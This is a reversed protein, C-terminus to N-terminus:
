SAAPCAPRRPMSNTQRPGLGLMRECDQTPPNVEPPLSGSSANRSAAYRSEVSSGNCRKGDSRSSKCHWGESVASLESASWSPPLTYEPGYILRLYEAGRVKLAPQVLVRSGGAVFSAPKMVIGEGGGRTLDGWWSIADTIETADYLAVERWPTRLLVASDLACIRALGRVSLIARVELLEMTEEEAVASRLRFRGSQRYRGSEEYRYRASGGQGGAAFDEKLAWTSDFWFTATVTTIKTYSWVRRLIEPGCPKRPRVGLLLMINVKV